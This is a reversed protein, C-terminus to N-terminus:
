GYPVSSICSWFSNEGAWQRQSLRMRQLGTNMDSNLWVPYHWLIALHRAYVRLAQVGRQFHTVGDPVHLHSAFHMVELNVSPQQGTSRNSGM